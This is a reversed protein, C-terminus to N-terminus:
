DASGNVIAEGATPLPSGPVLLQGPIVLGPQIIYHTRGGSLPLVPYGDRTINGLVEQERRPEAFILFSDNFDPVSILSPVAKPAAYTSREGVLLLSLLILTGLFYNSRNM